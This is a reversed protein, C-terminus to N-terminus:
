NTPKKRKLRVINNAEENILDINAQYKTFRNMLSSIDEIRRPEAMRRFLEQILSVLQEIRRYIDEFSLKHKRIKQFYFANENTIKRVISFLVESKM